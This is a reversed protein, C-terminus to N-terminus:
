GDALRRVAARGRHRRRVVDRHLSVEQANATNTTVLENMDVSLTTLSKSARSLKGANENIGQMSARLESFLSDLAKGMQGALDDGETDIPYNLNGGAAASVAALLSDVRQQLQLASEQAIAAEAQEAEHRAIQEKRSTREKEIRCCMGLTM